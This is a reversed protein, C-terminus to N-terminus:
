SGATIFERYLEGDGVARKIIEPIAIVPFRGTLYWRFEGIIALSDTERWAEPQYDLLDFELPLCGLSEEMCANIGATYATLYGRVDVPLTPWEREAIQALGITRHLLDSELAESGLVEALRGRAKRRLYDLQFLRDQATAYGFGFFLDCDNDAHIHPIGHRDREIRVSAKVGGLKHSGQASPVRRAANPEGGHM